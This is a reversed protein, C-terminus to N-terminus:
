QEHSEGTPTHRLLKYGASLAGAASTGCSLHTNALIVAADIDVRARGERKGYLDLLAAIFARQEQSGGLEVGQLIRDAVEACQEAWDSGDTARAAMVLSFVANAHRGELAAKRILAARQQQEAPATLVLHNLMEIV